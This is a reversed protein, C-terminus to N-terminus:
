NDEEKIERLIQEIKIGHEVSRDFIFEIDPVFRMALREGVLRKIFSRASKLAEKTQKQEEPTGLLSYRVRAHRLDRSVDVRTITIFGMRPDKIERALIQCVEDRIRDAVRQMRINKAVMM